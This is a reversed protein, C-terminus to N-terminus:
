APNISNVYGGPKQRLAADAAADGSKAVVEIVTHDRMIVRYKMEGSEGYLRNQANAATPSADYSISKIERMVEGHKSMEVVPEATPTDTKAM